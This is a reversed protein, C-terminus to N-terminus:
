LMIGFLRARVHDPSPVPKRFLMGEPKVPPIM